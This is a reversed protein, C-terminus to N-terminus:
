EETSSRVPGAERLASRAAERARALLRKLSSYRCGIERAVARAENGAAYFLLLLRREREKLRALARALDVRHLRREFGEDVLPLRELVREATEEREFQRRGRVRLCERHMVAHLWGVPNTVRGQAQYFRMLTEQLADECDERVLGLQAGRRMLSPRAEALLLTLDAWGPGQGDLPHEGSLSEDRCM